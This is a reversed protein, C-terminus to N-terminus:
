SAKKQRSKTQILQTLREVAKAYQLDSTTAIKAPDKFLAQRQSNTLSVVVDPTIGSNGIDRTKPTRWKTITVALGSGDSLGRVSQISNQGFTNTGVLIARNNDQLSAALIESAAATGEDVLVILPKSAAIAERKAQQPELQGQRNLTSVIAGEQLWMRAIEVASNLLGGSNSRLDLIYGAVEMKELNKIADRMKNAANFSFASLSIYGIKGKSTQQSSYRVPSIEVPSRVIRFEREQQGRRLTLVVTTGVRGRIRRVAETADLGQTSQGDIKVVVDRALIGAAAAPTNEIPAIVVVEKTTLDQALQLGVGVLNTTSDTQMSKFEQPDLFRTFPDGLLRIMEQIAQYAQENSTYSRNLYQQRLAKWDKGNFTTDIYERNVIQWVEDILDKPTAAPRPTTPSQAWSKSIHSDLAAIAVTNLAIATTLAVILRPKMNTRAMLNTIKADLIIALKSNALQSRTM